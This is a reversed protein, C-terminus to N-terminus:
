QEPMSSIEDLYQKVIKEEARHLTESCTSKAIDLTEALETLSSTRPTDYYGVEVATRVLELQHDTLLQGSEITQQVYDVTYSVGFADLQEGLQSLRDQPATLTWEAEGDVIDFPMELPVGSDQVAFLLLPMTTEFQILAENEYEQLLDVDTVEDYATMEGILDPLNPSSIEALGVGSAEGALAAVIRVRAESYSRSLDGIWTKEPISLTLKAQPM